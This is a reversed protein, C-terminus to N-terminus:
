VMGVRFRSRSPGAPGSSATRIVGARPAWLRPEEAAVRVGKMAARHTELEQEPGRLYELAAAVYESELKPAHRLAPLEVAAPSASSARAASSKEPSLIRLFGDDEPIRTRHRPDREGDASV